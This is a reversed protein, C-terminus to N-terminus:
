YKIVKTLQNFQKSANTQKEGLKEQFFNKVMPLFYLVLEICRHMIALTKLTIIKLLGMRVVECGLIM